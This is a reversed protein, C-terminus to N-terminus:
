KSQVDLHLRLNLILILIYVHRYSLEKILIM